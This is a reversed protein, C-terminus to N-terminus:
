SSRRIPNSEPCLLMVFLLPCLPASGMAPHGWDKFPTYAYPNDTDLQLLSHIAPHICAVARVM